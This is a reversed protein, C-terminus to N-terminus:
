LQGQQQLSFLRITTNFIINSVHPVTQLLTWGDLCACLTEMAIVCLTGWATMGQSAAGQAIMVLFAQIVSSLSKWKWHPWM